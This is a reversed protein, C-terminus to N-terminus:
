GSITIRRERPTDGYEINVLYDTEVGAREPWEIFMVAGEDGMWQEFGLAEVSAGDELRYLDVHVLRDIVPFTVEYVNVLTYSPSRVPREVGVGDAVGKVFATKGAGLEGRLGVVEGGNLLQLFEKAIDRTERESQTVHIHKM